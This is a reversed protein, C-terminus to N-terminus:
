ASSGGAPASVDAGAPAAAVTELAPSAADAAVAAGAEAEAGAAAGAGAGAGADAGAGAGVAAGEAGSREAVGTSRGEVGCAGEFGGESVLVGSPLRLDLLAAVGSGAPALAGGVGDKAFRAPRTPIALPPMAESLTTPARAVAASGSAASGCGCLATKAGISAAV